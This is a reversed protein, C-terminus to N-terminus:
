ETVEDGTAGAAVAADIDAVTPNSSGVNVTMDLGGGIAVGRKKAVQDIREELTLRTSLPMADAGEINPSFAIKKMTTEDLDRLIDEPSNPVIGMYQESQVMWHKNEPKPFRKKVAIRRAQLADIGERNGEVVYEWLARILADEKPMNARRLDIYASQDLIDQVYPRLKRLESLTPKPLPNDEDWVIADVLAQNLGSDAANYGAGTGLSWECQPYLISMMVGINDARRVRSHYETMRLMEDDTAAIGIAGKAFIAEIEDRTPPGKRELEAQTMPGATKAVASILDTTEAM